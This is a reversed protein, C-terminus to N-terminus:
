EEIQATIDRWAELADLALTLQEFERWSRAEDHLATPKTSSETPELIDEPSLSPHSLDIGTVEVSVGKLFFRKCM